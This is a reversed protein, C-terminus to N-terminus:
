GFFGRGSGLPAGGGGRGSLLCKQIHGASNYNNIFIHQYNVLKWKFSSKLNLTNNNIQKYKTYKKKIFIM